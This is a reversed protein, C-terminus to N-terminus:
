VPHTSPSCAGNEPRAEAGGYELFLEGDLQADQFTTRNKSDRMSKQSQIFRYLEEETWGKVVAETPLDGHAAVPAADVLPIDSDM